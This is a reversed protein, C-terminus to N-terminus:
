GPVLYELTLQTYASGRSALPRGTCSPKSIAELMASNGPDPTQPDTYSLRSAEASYKSFQHLFIALLQWSFLADAQGLLLKELQLLMCLLQCRGESVLIVAEANCQRVLSSYLPGQCFCTRPPRHLYHDLLAVANQNNAKASTHYLRGPLHLTQWCSDPLTAPVQKIPCAKTPALGVTCYASGKM